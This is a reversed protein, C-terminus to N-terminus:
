EYRLAKMPDVKSARLAPLYAAGLAVVALLVASAAFVMPDNGEMEFLLSQAGRGLAFAGVSGVVGGILVM